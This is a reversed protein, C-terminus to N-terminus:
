FVHILSTHTMTVELILQVFMLFEKIPVSFWRCNPCFFNHIVIQQVLFNSNVVQANIAHEKTGRCLYSEKEDHPGKIKVLTGDITGIMGTLGRRPGIMEFKESAENLWDDDDLPFRIVEGAHRTMGELFRALYHSVSQESCGLIV